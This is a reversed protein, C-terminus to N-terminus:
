YENEDSGNLINELPKIDDNYSLCNDWENSNYKTFTSQRIEKLKKFAKECRSKYDSLEANYLSKSYLECMRNLEKNEKRLNDIKRKNEKVIRFHEINMEPNNLKLFENEKKLEANKLVEDAYKDKFYDNVQGRANYKLKENEQQLNTIYDILDKDVCYCVKNGIQISNGDIKIKETM